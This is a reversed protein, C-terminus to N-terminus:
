RTPDRSYGPTRAGDCSWAAPFVWVARPWVSRRTLLGNACLDGGGLCFAAEIAIEFGMSLPIYGKAGHRVATRALEAHNASALVIIPIGQVLEALAKLASVSAENSVEILSLVVLEASAHGLQSELESFTSYTLLPLSFTPQMSRFICERLFTRGEIVAIFSDVITAEVKDPLRGIELFQTQAGLGDSPSSTGSDGM